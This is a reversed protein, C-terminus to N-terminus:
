MMALLKGFKLNFIERDIDDLLVRRKSELKLRREKVREIQHKAEQSWVDLQYYLQKVHEDDCM